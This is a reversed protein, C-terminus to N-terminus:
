GISEVATQDPPSGTKATLFRTVNAPYSYSMLRRWQETKPDYSFVTEIEVL